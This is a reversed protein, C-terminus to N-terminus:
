MRCSVGKNIRNFYELPVRTMVEELASRMVTVLQPDVKAV